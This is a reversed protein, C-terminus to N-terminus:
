PKAKAQVHNAYCGACLLVYPDRVTVWCLTMAPIVERCVHCHEHDWAQPALEFRNPDYQGTDKPILVRHGGGVPYWRSRGGGRKVMAEIAPDPAAGGDPAFTVLADLAPIRSEMWSFTALQGLQEPTM